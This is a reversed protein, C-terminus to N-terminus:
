MEGRLYKAKSAFRIPSELGVETEKLSLHRILVLPLESRTAKARSVSEYGACTRPSTDFYLLSRTSFIRSGNLRKNGLSQIPGSIERNM